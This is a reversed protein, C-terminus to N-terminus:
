YLTQTKVATCGIDGIPLLFLHSEQGNTYARVRDSFSLPENFSPFYERHAVECSVAFSAVAQYSSNCGSEGVPTSVFTSVTEIGQPDRAAITSTFAEADVAGDVRQSLAAYSRNVTLFDSVLAIQPLCTRVGWESAQRSITNRLDVSSASRVSDDGPQAGAAAVPMPAPRGTLTSYGFALGVLGVIVVLSAILYAPKRSVLLPHIPENRLM